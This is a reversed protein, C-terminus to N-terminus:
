SAFEPILSVSGQLSLFNKMNKNRFKQNVENDM